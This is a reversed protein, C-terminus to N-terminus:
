EQKQNKQYTSFDTEVGKRAAILDAFIEENQEEKSEIQSDFASQNEMFLDYMDMHWLSEDSNSSNDEKGKSLQRLRPSEQGTEL